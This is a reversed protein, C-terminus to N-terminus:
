LRGASLIEKLRPLKLLGYETCGVVEAELYDAYGLSPLLVDGEALDHGYTWPSFAPLLLFRSDRWLFVPMKVYGGVRDSLKIAPHEHGLVYIKGPVFRVERHGHVFVFNQIEFSEAFKVNEVSAISLLFNDHNGRVIWTEVSDALNGLIRPVGRWEEKVNGSFTHKFDGNIVFVEPKYRGILKRIREEMEQIHANMDLGLLESELGIHLDSIVCISLHSLFVGRYETLFVGDSIEIEHQFGM